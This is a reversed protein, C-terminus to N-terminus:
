HIERRVEDVLSPLQDTVLLRVNKEDFQTSVARRVEQQESDFSGVISFMPPGANCHKRVDGIESLLISARECGENPDKLAFSATHIIKHEGNQYGFDFHYPTTRYRAEFEVDKNLRDLVGANEFQKSVYARVQSANMAATPVTEVTEPEVLREYLQLLEAAPDVIACTRLETFQVADQQRRAFLRLAEPDLLHSREAELRSALGKSLIKLRSADAEYKFFRRARQHNSTFHWHLYGEKPCLLLVGLNVGEGRFADPVFRVISYYGKTEM